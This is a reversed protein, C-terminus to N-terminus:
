VSFATSVVDFCAAALMKANEPLMDFDVLELFLMIVDYIQLRPPRSFTSFSHRQCHFYQQVFREAILAM